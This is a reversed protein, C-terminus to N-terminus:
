HQQLPEYILNIAVFEVERSVLFGARWFKGQQQVLANPLVAAMNTGHATIM